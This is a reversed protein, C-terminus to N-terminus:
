SGITIRLAVTKKAPDLQMGPEVRTGHGTGAQQARIREIGRQMAARSFVDGTRVGLLELCRAEGGGLDALDGVCRVDGVRYVPGETVDVAIALSAHDPSLTLQETGVDTDIMGHDYYWANMRLRGLEFADERYIAGAVNFHGQGTEMLALLEAERAKTAVGRLQVSQILAKPGEVIEISLDLQNEPAPAAKWVIEVSRHGREVYDARVEEIQKRLTAGDFLDGDRGLLGRIRDVEAAAVGSLEFRRVRPREHVLFVLARGGPRAESTVQVDDLMGSEFLDRTDRRVDAEAFVGGARTHLYACITATPILANGRVEVRLVTDPASSEATSCPAPAAASASAHAAANGSGHTASRVTSGCASSLATLALVSLGSALARRASRATV